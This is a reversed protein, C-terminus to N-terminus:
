QLNYVIGNALMVGKIKNIHKYVAERSINLIKAIEVKTYGQNLLKIIELQRGEFLREMDMETDINIEDTIYNANYSNDISDNPNKSVHFHKKQRNYSKCSNYAIQRYLNGVYRYKITKYKEFYEMIRLITEQKVDELDDNDIKYTSTTIEQEYEQSKTEYGNKSLLNEKYFLYTFLKPNKQYFDFFENFTIEKNLKEENLLYKMCLGLQLRYNVEKYESKIESTMEHAKKFLESKTM